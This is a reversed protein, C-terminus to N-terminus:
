SLNVRKVNSIFGARARILDSPEVADAFTRWVLPHSTTTLLETASHLEEHVKEGPRLGTFEISITKGSIEIMKEAIGLISVPLGMDLVLVSHLANETAAQLVLQCAEPITMFYRTADPSTLQIPGGAEILSALVPVLSGRSGLVNGFRVSVYNGESKASYWSTLQEGLRKSKGLISTPDAAKDTSINVFRKVGARHSADLVNATGLVNTKWAEDPFRELVPLHKLAAAHFVVEPRIDQFVEQLHPADRIDALVIDDDSLLGSKYVALQASQLGTEDRDVFVLRSPNHAAVQRALEVGISGGAGTILVTKNTVLDRILDNDITIARRGVLDEIGVRRLEVQHFDGALFASRSPVIFLELGLAKCSEQVRDLLQSDSRPIAVVLAEAATRKVVKELDRLSGFVRFGAVRLSTKSASDDIFGVPQFKSNQDERLRSAITEGTHGAGYVLVRKVGERRGAKLRLLLREGVRVASALLLFLPTAIFLTSRPVGIEVGLFFIVAALPGIILATRAGLDIWEDFSGRRLFTRRRWLSVSSLFNLLAVVFGLGLHGRAFESPISFEFRLFAAGMLAFLWLASDLADRFVLPRPGEQNM